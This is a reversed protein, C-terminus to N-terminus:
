RGGVISRLRTAGFELMLQTAGPNAVAPTGRGKALRQEFSLGQFCGVDLFFDFTGLDAAALDTVDGVVFPAGSVGVATRRRSRARFTTSAWPM